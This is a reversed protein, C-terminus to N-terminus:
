QQLMNCFSHGDHLILKYWPYQSVTDGCPHIKWISPSLIYCWFPNDNQAEMRDIYLVFSLDSHVLSERLSNQSLLKSRGKLKDMNIDKSIANLSVYSFQLLFIKYKWNRQSTSGYLITIHFLSAIISM